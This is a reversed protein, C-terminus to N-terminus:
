WLDAFQKDLFKCRDETDKSLTVDLLRQRITPRVDHMGLLNYVSDNEIFKNEINEFTHDFKEWLCFEYIKDVTNKTNEILDKYTVFIFQGNNNKKAWDAGALSRMIPEGGDVLLGTEPNGAWNNKQRLSVFSRVIETIPRVLVIVKPQYNFYKNLIQVNAPMTWSRCKDVVISGTIGAYYTEPISAVLRDATSTRGTATLQESATTQCSVQLDWMLQCVASNGEAHILPNQDLISSLLTSGSRPLGSLAVFQKIM